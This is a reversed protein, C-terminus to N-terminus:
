ILGSKLAKGTKGMDRIGMEELKNRVKDKLEPESEILYTKHPNKIFYDFYDETSFALDKDSNGRMNGSLIEKSNTYLHNMFDVNNYPNYPFLRIIDKRKNNKPILNNWICVDSCKLRDSNENIIDRISETPTKSIDLFHDELDLSNNIFSSWSSLIPSKLIDLIMDYISPVVGCYIENSFISNKPNSTTLGSSITIIFGKMEYGYKLSGENEEFLYKVEAM